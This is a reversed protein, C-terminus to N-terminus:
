HCEEWMKEGSGLESRLGALRLRFRPGRVRPYTIVWNASLSLWLRGKEAKAREEKELDAPRLQAVTIRRDEPDELDAQGQRSVRCLIQRISCLPDFEFITGPAL